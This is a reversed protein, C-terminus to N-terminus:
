IQYVEGTTLRLGRILYLVYDKGRETSRLYFSFTDQFSGALWAALWACGLLAAVWDLLWAM